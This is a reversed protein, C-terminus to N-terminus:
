ASFHRIHLGKTEKDYEIYTMGDPIKGFQHRSTLLVKSKPTAEVILHILWCAIDEQLGDVIISLEQVEAKKIAEMLPKILENDPFDLIKEVTTDLPDDERFDQSHRQFHGGVLASLFAAAISNAKQNSSCCVIQHLLTHTFVTL